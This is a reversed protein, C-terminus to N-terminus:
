DVDNISRAADSNIRPPTDGRVRRVNSVRGNTGSPGAETSAYPDYRRPPRATSAWDADIDTAREFHMYRETDREVHPEKMIKTKVGTKSFSYPLPETKHQPYKKGEKKWAKGAQKKVVKKWEHKARLKDIYVKGDGWLDESRNHGPRYTDHIPKGRIRTAGGQYGEPDHINLPVLRPLAHTEGEEYEIESEKKKVGLRKWVMRGKDLLEKEMREEEMREQKRREKRAIRVARGAQQYLSKFKKLDRIMMAQRKRGNPLFEDLRDRLERKKVYENFPMQDINDELRVLTERVAMDRDYQRCFRATDQQQRFYIDRLYELKKEAQVVKDSQYLTELNQISKRRSREEEYYDRRGEKRRGEKHRHRHRDREYKDDRRHHDNDGRDRSSSHSTSAQHPPPSRLGDAFESELDSYNVDLSSGDDSSYDSDPSYDSDADSSISIFDFQTTEPSDDTNSMLTDGVSSTSIKEEIAAIELSLQQYAAKKASNSHYLAVLLPNSSCKWEEQLVPDSVYKALEAKKAELEAMLVEYEQPTIVQGTATDRMAVPNYSTENKATSKWSGVEFGVAKAPKAGVGLLNPRRDRTKIQNIPAHKNIGIAEGDKWGMGRLLAAGFGEVPVADYDAEAPPSPAEDYDRRFAEEDSVARPITLAQSPAETASSQISPDASDDRIILGEPILESKDNEIAKVKQVLAIHEKRTPEYSPSRPDPNLRQRKEVAIVRPANNPKDSENYAGGASNDYHTIAQHAPAEDDDAQLAALPRKAGALPSPQAATAKKSVGGGLKFSLPKRPPDAM